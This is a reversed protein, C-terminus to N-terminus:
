EAGERGRANQIAQELWLPLFIWLDYLKKLPLPLVAVTAAALRLLTAALHALKALLNGLLPPASHVVMELPIAALAIVFVLITALMSAAASTLWWSRPMLTPDASAHTLWVLMGQLLALTILLVLGIGALRRRQRDDLQWAIGLLRTIGLSEAVWVGLGL